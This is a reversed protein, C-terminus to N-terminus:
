EDREELPVLWEEFFEYPIDFKSKCGALTYTKGAVTRANRHYRVETIVTVKGQFRRVIDTGAVDTPPIMVMVKQGIHM